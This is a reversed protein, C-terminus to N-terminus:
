NKATKANPTCICHIYIKFNTISKVNISQSIGSPMTKFKGTEYMFVILQILHICTPLIKSM